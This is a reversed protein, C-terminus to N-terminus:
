FRSRAFRLSEIFIDQYDQRGAFDVHEIKGALALMEDRKEPSALFLRAGMGAGNELFRINKLPIDPILGIDVANRKDIYNGFAGTIVITKLDSGEADFEKMLLKVGAAIAGKALQVERIDSQFLCVPRKYSSEERKTLQFCLGKEKEVLRKQMAKLVAKTSGGRPSFNGERKIMGIKVLSAIADIIGSGCIGRATGNGVVHFSINGNRIEYRDIAGRDARMGSRINAGEFAPGAANSGCLIRERNGLISESNTGIDIILSIEKERHMGSAALSALADSGVFGGINPLFFGRAGRKLRLGIDKLSFEIGERVAPQYPAEGLSKPSIGFFLHHMVTNGVFVATEICDKKIGSEKLLRESIKVVDSRVAKKLSQLGSRGSAFLIRSIVDAGFARQSNSLSLSNVPSGDELDVLYGALTTTGVDFALGFRKGAVQSRPTAIKRRSKRESLPIDKKLLGVTTDENLIKRCALRINRKKEAESLFRKEVSDVNRSGKLIKIRCKGCWGAGGCEGLHFGLKAAMEHITKGCSVEIEKEIPQFKVRVKKM